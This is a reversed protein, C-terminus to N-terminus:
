VTSAPATSPEHPVHSLGQSLSLPLRPTQQKAELPYGSHVGTVTVIFFASDDGADCVFEGSDEPQAAPLVLRRRPGDTELVLTDSEEVELGDKYWRVSTDERSLECLLSVCELSVATLSVEDRPYIIRVPPEASHFGGLKNGCERNKSSGSPAVM